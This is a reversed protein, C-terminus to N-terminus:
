PATAAPAPPLGRVPPLPDADDHARKPKMSPAPGQAQGAGHRDRIGTSRITPHTRLPPQAHWYPNREGRPMRRVGGARLSYHRGQLQWVM